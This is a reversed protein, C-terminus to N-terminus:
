SQALGTLPDHLAQRKLREEMNKRGSVDQIQSVFYLPKGEEHHMLSVSLLTWVVYGYKHFYRKEMQYIRIEGALLRRVYDLDKELDDPHTIEQFTKGLLEAQSYGVIECLSRNVRLFRGDADVLAMGTAAHEFSGRFRQESERLAEEAEKRGTVERFNVVYEGVGPDNLLNTGM